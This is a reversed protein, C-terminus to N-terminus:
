RGGGKGGKKAGGSKGNRSSDGSSIATGSPNRKNGQSTAPPGTQASRDSKQASTTTKSGPLESTSAASIPPSAPEEPKEDEDEDEVYPEDERPFDEDIGRLLLENLPLLWPSTFAADLDSWTDVPGPLYALEASMEELQEDTAASEGTKVDEPRDVMGALYVPKTERLSAPLAFLIVLALVIILLWALSPLWQGAELQYGITSTTLAQNAAGAQVLASAAPLGGLQLLVQPVAGVLIALLGLIAAPVLPM